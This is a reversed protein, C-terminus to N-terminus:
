ERNNGDMALFVELTEKAIEPDYQQLIVQKTGCTDKITLDGPIDAITAYRWTQKEWIWDILYWYSKKPVIAGGTARLGGEWRDIVTQMEKMITTGTTHVDQATHLVDTNNVFAYCIFMLLTVAMALLLTAGFGIARMM